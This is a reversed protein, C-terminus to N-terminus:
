SCEPSPYHMIVLKSIFCGHIEFSLRIKSPLHLKAAKSHRKKHDNLICEKHLTLFHNDKLVIENFIKSRTGTSHSISFTFSLFKLVNTKNETICKTTYLIQLSLCEYISLQYSPSFFQFSFHVFLPVSLCYTSSEKKCSM